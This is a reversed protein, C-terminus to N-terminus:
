HMRPDTRSFFCRIPVQSSEKRGASATELGIDHGWPGTIRYCCSLYRCSGGSRHGASSFVRVVTWRCWQCDEPFILSGSHVGADVGCVSQLVFM